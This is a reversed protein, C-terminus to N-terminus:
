HDEIRSVFALVLWLRCPEGEPHGGLSNSFTFRPVLDAWRSLWLDAAHSILRLLPGPRMGQAFDTPKIGFAEATERGSDAGSEDIVKELYAVALRPDRAGTLPPDLNGPTIPPATTRAKKNSSDKSAASRNTKGKKGICETPLYSDPTNFKLQCDFPHTLTSLSGTVSSDANEEAKVKRKKATQVVFIVCRNFTQVSISNSVPLRPSTPNSIKLKLLRCQDNDVHRLRQPLSLSTLRICVHAFRESCSHTSGLEGKRRSQPRTLQSSRNKTGAFLPRTVM